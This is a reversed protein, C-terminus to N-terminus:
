IGIPTDFHVASVVGSVVAGLRSGFVRAAARKAASASRPSAAAVNAGGDEGKQAVVRHM